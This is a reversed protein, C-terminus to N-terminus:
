LNREAEHRAESLEKLRRRVAPIEGGALRAICKEEEERLFSLFDQSPSHLNDYGFLLSREDYKRANGERQACIVDYFKGDRFTYDHGIAYGNELLFTRVKFANKMPQLVLRPPLFGAGLVSLIEEGGMGAILVQDADHPVLALGDCCFSEAKGAEIYRALLREAKALSRASVDSIYARGCIGNELAYLTCYGHDCGVDALISCPALEGCLTRLRLTLKM